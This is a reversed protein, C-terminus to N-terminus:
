GRRNHAGAAVPEPDIYGVVDPRCLARFRRRPRFGRSPSKSALRVSVQQFGAVCEPVSVEPLHLRQALLEIVTTCRRMSSTVQSLLYLSSSPPFPSYARSAHVVGSRLTLHDHLFCRGLQPLAQRQQRSLIELGHMCLHGLANSLAGAEQLGVSHPPGLAPASFEHRVVLQVPNCPFERPERLLLSRPQVNGLTTPHLPPRRARPIALLPDGAIPVYRTWQILFGGDFEAFAGLLEAPKQQLFPRKMRVTAERSHFGCPSIGSVTGKGGKAVLTRFFTQPRFSKCQPQMPPRRQSRKRLKFSPSSSNSRRLSRRGPKM